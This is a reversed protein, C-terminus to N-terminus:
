QCPAKSWVVAAVGTAAHHFPIYDIIEARCGAGELAAGAAGWLRIEASSGLLTRSRARWMEGIDASCGRELRSLMWRDLVDDVWGAMDGRPNGSLGGSVLIGLRRDTLGAARAFAQGFAHIRRGSILPEVHCNIHVPIIPLGCAFRVVAETEQCGMGRGPDGVPQFAGRSEAIDFGDRVLEEILLDANEIDCAFRVLNTTEGLAEIATNGWVEGGVQMHLQPVNSEDFLDGRDATIVILADLNANAISQAVQAFAGSLRKAYDDLLAPTEAAAAEPQPEDGTLFDAVAEWEARPRYLLPSYSVGAGFFLPM